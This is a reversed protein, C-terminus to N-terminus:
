NCYRVLSVGDEYLKLSTDLDVGELELKSAIEELRKVAEEFSMETNKM